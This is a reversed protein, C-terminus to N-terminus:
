PPNLWGAGPRVKPLLVRGFARLQRGRRFQATFLLAALAGVAVFWGGLMPFLAVVGAFGRPMPKVRGLVLMARAAQACAFVGLVSAALFVLRASYRLGLPFFGGLVLLAFALVFTRIAQRGQRRFLSVDAPRTGIAEATSPEARLADASADTPASDEYM